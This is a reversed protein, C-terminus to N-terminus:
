KTTGIGVDAGLFQNNEVKIKKNVTNDKKYWKGSFDSTTQNSTELRVAMRNKLGFVDKKREFVCQRVSINKSGEIWIYSGGKKNRFRVGSVTIDSAHGAFVATVGNVNGLDFIVKGNGQITVNQSAEYKGTNQKGSAKEESIMQFLFKTTKVKNTGTAKTKKIKVGNECIIKVNSPVYITGPITYTGKKLKLTGGTASLRNMYSNIMYYQKTKKNYYPKQRYSSSCPITKPNVTFTRKKAEAFNSQMAISLVGFLATIMWLKWQKKM